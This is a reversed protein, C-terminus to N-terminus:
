RAIPVSRSVTQKAFASSGAWSVTLKLHKATRCGRPLRLSSATQLPRPLPLPRM